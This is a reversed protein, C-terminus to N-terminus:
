SRLEDLEEVTCTLVPRAPDRLDLRDWPIRRTGHSGGKLFRTLRFSLRELLAHPGVHFDVVFCAHDVREAAVEEIRGVPRGRSDHVKRGLLLELHVERASM